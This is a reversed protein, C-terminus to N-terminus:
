STMYFRGCPQTMNNPRRNRTQILVAHIDFIVPTRQLSHSGTETLRDDPTHSGGQVVGNGNDGQM